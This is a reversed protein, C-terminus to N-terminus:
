NIRNVAKTVDVTVDAGVAIVLTASSDATQIWSPQPKLSGLLFRCTLAAIVVAISVLKDPRM